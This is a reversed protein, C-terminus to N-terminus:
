ILVKAVFFPFIVTFYGPNKKQSTKIDNYRNEVILAIFLSRIIFEWHEESIPNKLFRKFQLSQVRPCLPEYSSM